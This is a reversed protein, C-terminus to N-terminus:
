QITQSIPAPDLSLLRQDEEILMLRKSDLANMMQDSLLYATPSLDSQATGSLPPTVVLRLSQMNM